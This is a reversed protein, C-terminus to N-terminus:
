PAIKANAAYMGTSFKSIGTTPVAAMTWTSSLAKVGACRELRYDAQLRTSTSLGVFGFQINNPLWVGHYALAETGTPYRIKNLRRLGSSADGAPISAAEEPLM